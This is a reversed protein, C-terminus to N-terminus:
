VGAPSALVQSVVGPRAWADRRKPSFPEIHPRTLKLGGLAGACPACADVLAGVGDVAQAGREVAQLLQLVRGELRRGDDGGRDALRLGIESGKDPAPSASVSDLTVTFMPVMSPPVEGLRTGVWAMARASM